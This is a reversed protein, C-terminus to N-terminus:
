TEGVETRFASKRGCNIFWTAKNARHGYASQWVECGVAMSQKMCGIAAPSTRLCGMSEVCSTRAGVSGGSALYHPIFCGGDNGHKHEGGWRAFNVEKGGCSHPSGGGVIWCLGPMVREEPWTDVCPLDSYYGDRECVAGSNLLKM